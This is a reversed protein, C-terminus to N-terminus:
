QYPRPKDSSVKFSKSCGFVALQHVILPENIYSPMFLGLLAKLLKFTTETVKTGKRRVRFTVSYLNMLNM